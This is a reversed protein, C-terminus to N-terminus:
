RLESASPSRYRRAPICSTRIECANTAENCVGDNCANGAVSCDRATGGTCAGAVCADGTGCAPTCTGEPVACTEFGGGADAYGFNYAIVRLHKVTGRPVGSLGPGVHIDQLYVTARDGCLPNHGVAKRNADAMAHFNRPRKSHDLIVEQYLERLESM